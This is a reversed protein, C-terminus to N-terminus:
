AAKQTKMKEEYARARKKMEDDSVDEIHTAIWWTNGFKDKVGGNRDGYFQDAPELVSTGGAKIAKHYMADVDETYIYINMPPAEKGMSDGILIMSNGIKLQAHWIQGNKQRLLHIIEADLADELFQIFNDPDKSMFFPTVSNFGNPIAKTM